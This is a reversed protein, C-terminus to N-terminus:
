AAAGQRLGGVQWAAERDGTAHTRCMATHTQQRLHHLIRIEHGRQGHHLRGHGIAKIAPDKVAERVFQDGEFDPFQDREMLPM